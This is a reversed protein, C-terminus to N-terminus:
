VSPGRALQALPQPPDLCCHFSRTKAHVSACIVAAESRDSAGSILTTRVRNTPRDHAPLRDCSRERAHGIRRRAAPRATRERAEGVALVPGPRTRQRAHSARTEPTAAVLLRPLLEHPTPKHVGVHGRGAAPPSCRQRQHERLRAWPPIRVHVGLQYFCDEAEAAGTPRSPKAPSSPPPRRRPRRRGRGTSEAATRPQRRSPDCRDAPEAPTARMPRARARSRVPPRPFVFTARAPGAHADHGQAPEDAADSEEATQSAAARLCRDPDSLKRRSSDPGYRPEPRLPRGPDSVQRAAPAPFGPMFGLPFGSAKRARRAIGVPTGLSRRSAGAEALSRTFRWM